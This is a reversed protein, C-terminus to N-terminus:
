EPSVAFHLPPDKSGGQFYLGLGIVPGNLNQKAGAFASSADLLRTILTAPLRTALATSADCITWASQESDFSSASRCPGVPVMV